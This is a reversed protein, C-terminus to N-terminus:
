KFSKIRQEHDFFFRRSELCHLETCKCCPVQYQSLLTHRSPELHTFYRMHDQVMTALAHIFEPRANLAPARIITGEPCQVEDKTMRKVYEHDLEYLTEIHDSTFAIPVLVIGPYFQPAKKLKKAFSMLADRTQPSLWQAPGVKSQWVIRFPNNLKLAQVVAHATACVEAAYTDGRDIVSLPLSHATFLILVRNRDEEKFSSLADQITSAFAQIAAANVPWRDILSWKIEQDPDLRQLTRRLENLSSGTTSCSFQPYQSFAIARKVGDKKMQYIADETFPKDYRFAVYYKHPAIIYGGFLFLIIVYM